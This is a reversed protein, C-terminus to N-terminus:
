DFMDDHAKMEDYAKGVGQYWADQYRGCLCLGEGGNLRNFEGDDEIVAIMEKWLMNPNHKGDDYHEYYSVVAQVAEISRGNEGWAHGQQIGGTYCDHKSWAEYSTNLDDLHARLKTMWRLYQATSLEQHLKMHNMAEEM